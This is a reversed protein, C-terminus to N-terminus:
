RRDVADPIHLQGGGRAAQEGLRLRGLEGRQLSQGARGYGLLLPDVLQALLGGATRELGEQHGERVLERHHLFVECLEVVVEEDLGAGLPRNRINAVEDAVLREVGQALRAPERTGLDGMGDRQAAALARGRHQFLEGTIHSAPVGVRHLIELEEAGRLVHIVQPVVAQVSGVHAAELREGADSGGEIHQRVRHVHPPDLAARANLM